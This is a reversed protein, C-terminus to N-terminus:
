EPDHLDELAMGEFENAPGKAKVKGPRTRAAVPKRPRVKARVRAPPSKTKDASPKAEGTGLSETVLAAVNQALQDQPLDPKLQSVLQRAKDVLPRYNALDANVSEVQSYFSTRAERQGLHQEIVNPLMVRVINAVSRTIGVHLNAALRPLVEDPATLMKDADEESLEYQKALQEAAVRAAEEAAQQSSQQSEESEESDKEQTDQGQQEQQEKELLLKLLDARSFDAYPTESGEEDTEDSEEDSEDTDTDTDAEQQVTEDETEDDESLVEDATESESEEAVFEDDMDAFDNTLDEDFANSTGEDPAQSASGTGMVDDAGDLVDQVGSDDTEKGM